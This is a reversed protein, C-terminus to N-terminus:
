DRHRFREILQALEVRSNIDLRDYINRLHVKVTQHSRDTAEAIEKNTAGSAAYEAVERQAPTLNALPSLQPRSPPVFHAIYRFMGGGEMRAVRVEIGDVAQVTMELDGGDLKRVMDCVRRRHKKELTDRLGPSSYEFCGSPSLVAFQEDDLMQRRRLHDATTLASLLPQELPRLEEKLERGARPQDKRRFCGLWGLFHRGSYMLIRATSHIRLPSLFRRDLGCGEVGLQDLNQTVFRNIEARNPNEVDLTPTSLMPNGTFQDTYQRVSEDGTTTIGDYHIQGDVRAGRFFTVAGLEAVQLLVDMIQDHIQDPNGIPCSLLDDIKRQFQSRM